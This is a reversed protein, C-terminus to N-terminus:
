CDDINVLIKDFLKHKMLFALLSFISVFFDYRFALLLKQRSIFAM